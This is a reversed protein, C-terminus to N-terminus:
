SYCTKDIHETALYWSTFCSKHYPIMIRLLFINRLVIVAWYCVIRVTVKQHQVIFSFEIVVYCTNVGTGFSDLSDDNHDVM